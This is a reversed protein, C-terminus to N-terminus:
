PTVGAFSWNSASDFTKLRTSCEKIKCYPTLGQRTVVHSVDLRVGKIQNDNSSAHFFTQNGRLDISAGAIGVM